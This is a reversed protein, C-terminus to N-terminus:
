KLINPEQYFNQLCYFYTYFRKLNKVIKTKKLIERKKNQIKDNHFQKWFKNM